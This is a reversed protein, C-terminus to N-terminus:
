TVARQESPSSATSLRACLWMSAADACLWLYDVMRFWPHGMASVPLPLSRGVVDILLTVLALLREFFLRLNDAPRVAHFTTSPCPSEYPAPWRARGPPPPVLMRVLIRDANSSHGVWDFAKGVDFADADCLDEALMFTGGPHLEMYMTVDYLQGHLRLLVQGTRSFVISVWSREFRAYHMRWSLKPRVEDRLMPWRELVPQFTESFAECWLDEDGGLRRLASCTSACAAIAHGGALALVKTLMDSPLSRLTMEVIKRPVSRPQRHVTALLGSPVRTIRKPRRPSRGPSPM